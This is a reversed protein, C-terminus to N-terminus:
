GLFWLYCQWALTCPWLWVAALVNTYLFFICSNSLRHGLLYFQLLTSCQCKLPVSFSPGSFASGPFFFIWYIVPVSNWSYRWSVLNIHVQVKGALWKLRFYLHSCTSIEYQKGNWLGFYCFRSCAFFVWFFCFFFGCCFVTAKPMM